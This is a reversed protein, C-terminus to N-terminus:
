RVLVPSAVTQEQAPAASEKFKQWIRNSYRTVTLKATPGNGYQRKIEFTFVGQKDEKVGYTLRSFREEAKLNRRYPNFELNLHPNALLHEAMKLSGLIVGALYTQRVHESMRRVAEHANWTINGRGDKVALDTDEDKIANEILEVFQKQNDHALREAVGTWFAIKMNAKLQSPLEGLDPRTEVLNGLKPVLTPKFGDWSAPTLATKPVLRALDPHQKTLLHHWHTFSAGNYDLGCGQHLRHLSADGTLIREAEEILQRNIEKNDRGANRSIIEIQGDLTSKANEYIWTGLNEKAQKFKELPGLDGNQKAPLVTTSYIELLATSRARAEACWTNEVTLLNSLRETMCARLYRYANVLTDRRGTYYAISDQINLDSVDKTIDRESQGYRSELQRFLEHAAPFNEELKAITDGRAAAKGIEYGQEEIWDICAEAKEYDEPALLDPQAFREAIDDHGLQGGALKLAKLQWLHLHKRNGDGKLSALCARMNESVHGDDCEAIVRSRIIFDPMRSTESANQMLRNILFSKALPNRNDANKKGDYYDRVIEKLPPSKDERWAYVPDHSAARAIRESGSALVIALQSELILDFEDRKPLREDEVAPYQSDDGQRFQDINYTEVATVDVFLDEGESDLVRGDKELSGGALLALKEMLRRHGSQANQLYERGSLGISEAVDNRIWQRIERFTLGGAWPSESIEGTANQNKFTSREAIFQFGPHFTVNNNVSEIEDFLCRLLNQVEYANQQPSWKKWIQATPTNKDKVNEKWWNWVTKIASIRRLYLNMSIIAQGNPTKSAPGQAEQNYTDAILQSSFSEM